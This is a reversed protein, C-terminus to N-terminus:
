YSVSKLYLGEPPANFGVATREKADLAAKLDAKSWKKDGILKLSGVMSRVQNHLFSRASTEVLILDGYRSVNLKDLTKIPSKAQCQTNRFTTFDHEGVLLQAADHMAEADLPYPIWWAKGIDLALPARRNIIHYEYHRATASFRASFDPAVKEVDLISINHDRLNANIASKLEYPTMKRELDMHGVQGRAHVGSDTRGAGTIKQVEGSFAFVAQELCAQISLGNDQVQWGVYAAGDYEITLKFRQTM